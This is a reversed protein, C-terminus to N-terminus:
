PATHPRTPTAQPSRDRPTLETLAGYPARDSKIFPILPVDPKCASLVSLTALGALASLARLNQKRRM